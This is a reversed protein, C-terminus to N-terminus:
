PWITDLKLVFGPLVPDGSVMQPSELVEAEIGPRYIWVRQTEPDLLWGLRVGNEVYERMKDQVDDLPDSKSRIEAVFDPALPPFKARDDETLENWRELVVWSSDPSRKAGNPLRFGTSSDFAVGTGDALSWVVLQATLVANRRGTEGGTPPMVILDGDSTRELRLDSNLRCFEYFEDDSLRALTPGMHLVLPESTTVWGTSM